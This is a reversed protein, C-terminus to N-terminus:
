KKSPDRAIKKGVGDEAKRQMQLVNRRKNDHWGSQAARHLSFGLWLLLFISFYHHACVCVCVGVCIGPDIKKAISKNKM